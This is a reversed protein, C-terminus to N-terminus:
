LKMDKKFLSRENTRNHSPDSSPSCRPAFRTLSEAARVAIFKTFVIEKRTFALIHGLFPIDFVDHNSIRYICVMGGMWMTDMSAEATILEGLLCCIRGPPLAVSGHIVM